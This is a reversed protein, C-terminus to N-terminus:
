LGEERERQMWNMAFRHSLEWIIDGLWGRGDRAVVIMGAWAVTMEARM